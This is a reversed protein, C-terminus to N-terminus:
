LHSLLQKKLLKGDECVYFGFLNVIKFHNHEQVNFFVCLLKWANKAILRSLLM